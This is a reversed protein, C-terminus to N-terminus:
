YLLDQLASLAGASFRRYNGARYERVVTSLRKARGDPLTGRARAHEEREALERLLADAGGYLRGGTSEVYSKAGSEYRDIITRYRDADARRRQRHVDVRGPRLALGVRVKLRGPPPGSPVGIEQSPHVRYRMLPEDIVRYSRVFSAMLAIWADHIWGAPIPLIFSRLDARMALTSGTVFTHPVLLPTIDGRSARDRAEGTFGIAEWLTRGTASGQEDILQADSFCFGISPDARFAEDVKALKNPLWVDDQDCLAIRDGDCRAIARAFNATPGLRRESVHVTVPVVSRNAFAEVIGRTGDTSRDDCIVIEDPPRTQSALSDLLEPLFREGNYTCLAISIREDVM